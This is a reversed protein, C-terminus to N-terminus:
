ALAPEMTLSQMYGAVPPIIRLQIIRDKIYIFSRKGANEVKVTKRGETKEKCEGGGRGGAGEKGEEGEDCRRIYKQPRGSPSLRALLRIAHHQRASLHSGEPRCSKGM